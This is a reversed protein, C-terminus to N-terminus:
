LLDVGFTAGSEGSEVVPPNRIHLLQLADDIVPGEVRRHIHGKIVVWPRKDSAAHGFTAKGRRGVGVPRRRGEGGTERGRPGHFEEFAEDEGSSLAFAVGGTGNTAAAQRLRLTSGKTMRIM